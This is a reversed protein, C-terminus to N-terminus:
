AFYQTKEFFYKTELRLAYHDSAALTLRPLLCEGTAIRSFRLISCESGSMKFDTYILSCRDLALVSCTTIRRLYRFCTVAFGFGCFFGRADGSSIATYYSPVGYHFLLNFDMPPGDFLLSPGTVKLGYTTLASKLKRDGFKEATFDKMISPSASISPLFFPIRKGGSNLTTTNPIKKLANIKLVSWKSNLFSNM